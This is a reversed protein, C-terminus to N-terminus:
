RVDTLSVYSDEDATLWHTVIEEPGCPEPYITCEPGHESEVIAHDFGFASSPDPVSTTITRSM